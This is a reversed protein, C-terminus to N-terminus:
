FLNLGEHKIRLFGNLIYLFQKYVLIILKSNINNYVVCM